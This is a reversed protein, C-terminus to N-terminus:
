LATTLLQSIIFHSVACDMRCPLIPFNKNSFATTDIHSTAEENSFLKKPPSFQSQSCPNHPRYEFTSDWEIRFIREITFTERKNYDKRCSHALM